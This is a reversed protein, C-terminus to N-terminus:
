ALLTEMIEDALEDRMNNDAINRLLIGLNGFAITTVAQKGNLGRSM